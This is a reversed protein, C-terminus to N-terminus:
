GPALAREATTISMRGRRGRRDSGASSLGGSLIRTRMTASRVWDFGGIREIVRRDILMCFGFVDTEEYSIGHARCKQAAINYIEDITLHKRVPAIQHDCQIGSSHSTTPGVVDMGADMVAHIISSWGPTVVTDSNLVCIRSTLAKRLGENCSRGFGLPRDHRILVDAGQAALWDRVAEDSGDDILILNYDTTNERLSKLCQELYRLQNHVPIIIDFHKTRVKAPIAPEARPLVTPKGQLSLPNDLGVHLSRLAQHLDRYVADGLQKCCDNGNGDPLVELRNYVDCVAEIFSKVPEVDRLSMAVRVSKEVQAVIKNEETM